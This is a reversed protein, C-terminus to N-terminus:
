HVLLGHVFVTAMYSLVTVVLFTLIPFSSLGIDGFWLKIAIGIVFSLVISIWFDLLM